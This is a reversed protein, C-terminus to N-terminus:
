PLKREDYRKGFDMAREQKATASNRLRIGAIRSQEHWPAWPVAQSPDGWLLVWMLRGLPPMKSVGEVGRARMAPTSGSGFQLGTLSSGVRPGCTEVHRTRASDLRTLSPRAGCFCWGAERITMYRGTGNVFGCRWTTSEMSPWSSASCLYRRSGCVLIFPQGRGM